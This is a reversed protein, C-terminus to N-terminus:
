FEESFEQSGVYDDVYKYFDMERAATRNIMMQRFSGLYPRFLVTNAPNMGPHSFLYANAKEARGMTLMEAWSRDYSVGINADLVWWRDDIKVENFWHGVGVPKENLAVSRNEIGARNLLANMFTMYDTCCGMPANFYAQFTVDEDAIAGTVPNTLACGNLGYTDQANGFGWLASVHNLYFFAKLLEPQEIGWATVLGDKHQLFQEDLASAYAEFSNIAGAQSLAGRSFLGQLEGAPLEHFTFRYAFTKVGQEHYYHAASVWTYSAGVIPLLIALLVTRMVRGPRGLLVVYLGAVIVTVGLAGYQLLKAKGPGIGSLGAITARVGTDGGGIPWLTWGLMQLSVVLWFSLYVFLAAALFWVTEKAFLM